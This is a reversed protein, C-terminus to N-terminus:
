TEQSVQQRQKMEHYLYEFHDHMKPDKTIKRASSLTAGEPFIKEWIAIIRGAFLDEVLNMDLLGRAVLMGIGEFYAALMQWHTHADIPYMSHPKITGDDNVFAQNDFHYRLTIYANSFDQATWRNYITAFLEAQRTEIESQRQRNAERSTYIQNIAAILVGIGTIVITATQIDM